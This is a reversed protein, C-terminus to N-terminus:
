EVGCVEFKGTSQDQALTVRVAGTRGTGYVVSVDVSPETTALSVNGVDFDTIAPQAAVRETFDSRSEANRLSECQQEYADAFRKDRVADFYQGVVVDAQEDVARKTLSILAAVAFTGGGCFLVLALGGVGLGLWLRRSRGETPPAPFPAVAGPGPPPGPVLATDTM